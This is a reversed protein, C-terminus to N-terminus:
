KTSKISNWTMKDSKSMFQFFPKTLLNIFSIYIVPLPDDLFAKFINKAYFGMGRKYERNVLNGFYKNLKLKVAEPNSRFIQKLYDSMTNPLKYYVIAQSVFAFEHKKTKCFFYLYTDQNKIEPFKVQKAFSNKIAICAGTCAFLNNGKRISLRSKYFVKFTSYVGRQFFNKPPCAVTNGGVLVVKNNVKFAEVLSTITNASEIKIDGDFMVLIDGIASDFFQQTRYTKGLRKEDSIVKILPSIVAQAEKVTKDISGDSYVFIEKLEWGTQKQSLIDKLVIAINKEENYAPIGVSITINNKM